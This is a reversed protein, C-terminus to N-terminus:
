AAGVMSTACWWALMDVLALQVLWCYLGVQLSFSVTRFTCNSHQGQGYVCTQDNWRVVALQLEALLREQQQAPLVRARQWSTLQQEHQREFRSRSLWVVHLRQLQLPAQMASPQLPALDAFAAPGFSYWSHRWSSSSSSTAAAQSESGDSSGTSHSSSSGKHQNARSTGDTSSHTSAPLLDRFLHRLWMSAAYLVLSECQVDDATGAKYTLLSQAHATYPALLATAFCTGDPYPQHRLFRLPYPHSLRRWVDSFYGPLRDDAIVVQVCLCACWHSWAVERSAQQCLRMFSACSATALAVALM